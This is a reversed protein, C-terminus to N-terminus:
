HVVVTIGMRVDLAVPWSTYLNERPNELIYSQERWPVLAGFSSGLSLPGLLPVGLGFRAGTAMWLRNASKARIVAGSVEGEAQMSGADIVLCGFLRLRRERIPQYCGGLEAHILQFHAHGTGVAVSQSVLYAAAVRVLIRRSVDALEVLEEVGYLPEPAPGLMLGGSTGLTVRPVSPQRPAPRSDLASDSQLPTNPTSREEPPSETSL